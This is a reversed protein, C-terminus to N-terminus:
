AKWMGVIGANGGAGMANANPGWATTGAAGSKEIAAYFHRGVAPVKRATVTL